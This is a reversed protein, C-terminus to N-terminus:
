RLNGDSMDAGALFRYIIGLSVSHLIEALNEAAALASRERMSVSYRLCAVRGNTDDGTALFRYVDGVVAVTRGESPTRLTPQM